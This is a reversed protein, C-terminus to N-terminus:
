EAGNRGPSLSAKAQDGGALKRYDLYNQLILIAAVKDVKARRGKRSMDSELLAREAVASTFREDWPVVPVSVRGRLEEMFALVKHAQPGLTGDLKRPLGVVVEAAGHALVLDAVARIDKRPGTRELTELGGAITATEDSLALGIRKDGVDLGLYRVFHATYGMREDPGPAGSPTPLEKEKALIGPPLRDPPEREGLPAM